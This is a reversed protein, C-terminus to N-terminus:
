LIKSGGLTRIAEKIMVESVDLGYVDKPNLERLSRIGDGTGCGLDLIRKGKFSASSIIFQTIKPEETTGARRLKAYERGINNYQREIDM